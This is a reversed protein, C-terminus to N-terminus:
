NTGKENIKEKLKKIDNLCAAQVYYNDADISTKGNLMSGKYIVQNHRIVSKLEDNTIYGPCDYTWDESILIKRLTEKEIKDSYLLRNQRLIDECSPKMRLFVIYDYKNIDKDKNPLYVGNKDWDASELLLLQGFYKTSKIAVNKGKVKIDVSDWVGLESVSFDPMLNKDSKYFINCAACEALKGQFTDSFIQAPRRKLSGGSRHDRHCGEKGFTMSYAFNLVTEITTKKLSGLPIYKVNKTVFFSDGDRRMASLVSSDTKIELNNIEDDSIKVSKKGFLALIKSLISM